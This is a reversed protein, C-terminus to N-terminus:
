EALAAAVAQEIKGHLDVGAGGRFTERLKGDRGYLKFFPIAGGPIDWAEAGGEDSSVSSIFHPFQSPQKGLFKTVGAPVAGEDLDDFALSVVLLGQKEFQQHLSVTKPFAKVCPVCWTAWCDILVAKGRQKAIYEDLQAPTVPTVVVKTEEAAHLPQGSATSAAFHSELAGLLLAMSLALVFSRLLLM